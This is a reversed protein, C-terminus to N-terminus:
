IGNKTETKIYSKLELPKGDKLMESMTPLYNFSQPDETLIKIRFQFVDEMRKYELKQKRYERAASVIMWFFWVAM